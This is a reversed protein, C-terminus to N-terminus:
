ASTRTYATIASVLAARAPSPLSGAELAVAAAIVLQAAARRLGCRCGPTLPERPPPWSLVIAGLALGEAMQIIAAHSGEGVTLALAQLLMAAALAVASPLGSM